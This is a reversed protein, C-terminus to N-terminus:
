PYPMLLYLSRYIFLNAIYQIACLIKGNDQLLKYDWIIQLFVSDSHQVGLVFMINYIM